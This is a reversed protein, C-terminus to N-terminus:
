RNSTNSTEGQNVNVTEVDSRPRNACALASVNIVHDQNSIIGIVSRLFNQFMFQPMYSPSVQLCFFSLEMTFM